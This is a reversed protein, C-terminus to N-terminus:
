LSQMVSVDLPESLSGDYQHVSASRQGFGNFVLEKLGEDPIEEQMALVGLMENM